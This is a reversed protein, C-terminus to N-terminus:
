IYISVYSLVNLRGKGHGDETSASKRMKLLNKFIVIDVGFKVFLTQLLSNTGSTLTEINFSVM